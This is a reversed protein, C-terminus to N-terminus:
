LMLLQLIKQPNELTGVVRQSPQPWVRVLTPTALIQASEAQEPHQIVDIIKLTYPRTLAQELVEHLVELTRTTHRSSGAIFLHLVY